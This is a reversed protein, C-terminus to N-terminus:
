SRGIVDCRLRGDRETGLVQPPVSDLRLARMIHPAQEATDIYGRFLEETYSEGFDFDEPMDVFGLSSEAFLPELLGRWITVFDGDRSLYANIRLFDPTGDVVAHNAYEYVAVGGPFEFDRLKVFSCVTPDFAAM